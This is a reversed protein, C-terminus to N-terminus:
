NQGITSLYVLQQTRVAWGVFCPARGKEDTSHPKLAVGMDLFILYIELIQSTDLKSKCQPLM